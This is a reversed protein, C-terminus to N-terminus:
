GFFADTDGSVSLFVAHSRYTAFYSTGKPMAHHVGASIGEAGISLHVPTKMEDQFYDQRIREECLRILLLKRYLSLLEKGSRM